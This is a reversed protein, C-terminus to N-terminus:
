KLQDRLSDVVDTQNDNTSDLSNQNQTMEQLTGVKHLADHLQLSVIEAVDVYAMLFQIDKALFFIFLMLQTAM